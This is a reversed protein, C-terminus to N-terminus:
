VLKFVTMYYSHVGQNELLKVCRGVTSGTTFVDDIVLVRKGKLREASYHRLMIQEANEKRSEMDLKKQETKSPKFLARLPIGTEKSIREAMYEGHDFGLNQVSKFSSPAFTILHFSKIFVRQDSLMLNAMDNGAYFSGRKKYAMLLAKGEENYAFISMGKQKKLLSEEQLFILKKKCSTCLGDTFEDCIPCKDYPFVLNRFFQGIRNM